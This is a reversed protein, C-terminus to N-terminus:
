ARALSLTHEFQLGFASTKVKSFTTRAILKGAQSFLGEETLTKGNLSIAPVVGSFRVQGGSPYTVTMLADGGGVSDFTWVPTGQLASDGAAPATPAVQETVRMQRVFLTPYTAATFVTGGVTPSGQGGGLLAMLADLGINVVMNSRVVEHALGRRLAILLEPTSLVRDFPHEIVRLVGQIKM